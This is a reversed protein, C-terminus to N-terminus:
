IAECPDDTNRHSMAMDGADATRTTLGRHSTPADAPTTGIRESNLGGAIPVLGCPSDVTEDVKHIAQKVVDPWCARCLREDGVAIARHIVTLPAGCNPYGAIPSEAHFQPPDSPRHPGLSYIVIRATM